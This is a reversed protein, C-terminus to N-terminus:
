VLSNRHRFVQVNRVCVNGTRELELVGLHHISIFRRVLSNRLMRKILLFEYETCLYENDELMFQKIENNDYERLEEDEDVFEIRIGLSKFIVAFMEAVRSTYSPHIEFEEDGLLMHEALDRRGKYSSRYMLHFLQVDEPIMGILFNLSEFEGFRIPTSSARETFSKNKYSREPLGKSNISGTGRASFGKRSTQKLKLIYMEGVYAPNLMKIERGWKNIYVDYPTLFDYKEYIELLRFFIPKTEWLPSQHIFIRDNICADIYEQNEEKNLKNYKKSCSTFPFASSSKKLSIKLLYKM